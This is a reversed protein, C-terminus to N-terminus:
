DSVAATMVARPASRPTAEETAAEIVQRAVAIRGGSRLVLALGDSPRSDLLRRQGDASRLELAALFQGDRLEDIVLREVTWGTLVLLDGLLEHTQPRPPRQRRRAREIADAEVSGVFIPLDVDSGSVRLVLIAVEHGALQQVAVLEAPQLDAPAVALERALGDQAPLALGSLGLGVLLIRAPNFWALAM